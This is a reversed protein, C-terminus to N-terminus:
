AKPPQPCFSQRLSRAAPRGRGHWWMGLMPWGHTAAAIPRTTFGKWRGGHEPFPPLFATAPAPARNPADTEAGRSETSGFGFGSPSTPVATRGRTFSFPNGAPQSSRVCFLPGSPRVPATTSCRGDVSTAASRSAGALEQNGANTNGSFLLHNPPCLPHAPRRLRFLRLVPLTHRKQAIKMSPRVLRPGRGYCIPQVGVLWAGGFRCRFHVSTAATM